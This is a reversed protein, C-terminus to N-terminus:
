TQLGRHPPEQRDNGGGDRTGARQEREAKMAKAIHMLRDVPYPPLKQGAKRGRVTGRM